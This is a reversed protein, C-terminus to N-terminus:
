GLDADTVKPMKNRLLDRAGINEEGFQGTVERTIMEKLDSWASFNMCVNPHLETFSYLVEEAISEGCQYVGLPEELEETINMNIKGSPTPKIMM